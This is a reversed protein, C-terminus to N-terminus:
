SNVDNLDEATFRHGCKRTKCEQYGAVDIWYDTDETDYETVVEIDNKTGCEPCEVRETHYEITSAM